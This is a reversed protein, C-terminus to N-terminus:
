KVAEGPRAGMATVQYRHQGRNDFSGNVAGLDVDFLATTLRGNAYFAPGYAPGGDTAALGVHPGERVRDQAVTGDEFFLLGFGPELGPANTTTADPDWFGFQLRSFREDRREFALIVLSHEPSIISPNDLTRGPVVQTNLTHGANLVRTAQKVANLLGDAPAYEVLDFLPAQFKRLGLQFGRTAPQKFVQGPSKVPKIPKTSMGGNKALYGCVANTMSFCRTLSLEKIRAAGRCSLNSAAFAQQFEKTGPVVRKGQTLFGSALNYANEGGQGSRTLFPLLTTTQPSGDKMFPTNNLAETKILTDVRPVDGQDMADSMRDFLSKGQSKDKWLQLLQPHADILPEITDLVLKLYRVKFIFQGDLVLEDDNILSKFRKVAARVGLRTSQAAALSTPM